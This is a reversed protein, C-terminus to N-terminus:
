DVHFVEEMRTWWEGEPTGPLPAQCPDTHRWWEQTVPDEAMRQMDADFDSGTYEFYSFLYPNGDPMRQLYISYNRINSREIQELVAPWADAHLAKYEPIRDEKIGIVMGYREVNRSACGSAMCGLVVLLISRFGKM